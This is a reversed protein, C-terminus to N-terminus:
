MTNKVFNLVKCHFKFILTDVECSRSNLFEIWYFSIHDEICPRTQYFLINLTLVKLFIKRCNGAQSELICILLEAFNNTGM